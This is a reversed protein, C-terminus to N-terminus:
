FPNNFYQFVPFSRDRESIIPNDDPWPIGVSNWLIGMDHKPAYITSLKYIMIAKESLVYFGHALGPPIYLMNQKEASLEFTEYKGYTTSNKRLDVVADFVSGEICYVLKVYEHPPIQFHLGRLVGKRSISFDDESFSTELGLKTFIDKHFTKTFCGRKDRLTQPQLHFCGNLSTPILKV